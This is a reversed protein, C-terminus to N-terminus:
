LKLWWCAYLRWGSCCKLDCAVAVLAPRLGSIQAPVKLSGFEQRLASLQAQEKLLQLWHCKAEGEAAVLQVHKAAIKDQKSELNAHLNRM